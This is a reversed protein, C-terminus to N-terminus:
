IQLFEPNSEKKGGQSSIINDKVETKSAIILMLKVAFQIELSLLFRFTNTLNFHQQFNSYTITVWRFSFQSFLTLDTTTLLEVANLMIFFLM